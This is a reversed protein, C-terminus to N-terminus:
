ASAAEGLVAETVKSVDELSRVSPIKGAKLTAHYSRVAGLPKMTGDVLARM